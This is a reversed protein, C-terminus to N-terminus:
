PNAAQQQAVWATIENWKATITAQNAAYKTKLVAMGNGSAAYRAFVETATEGGLFGAVEKWPKTKLQTVVAAPDLIMIGGSDFPLVEDGWASPSYFSDKSYFDVIRALNQANLSADNQSIHEAVIHYLTYGMQRMTEIPVQFHEPRSPDGQSDSLEQMLPLLEIIDRQLRSTSVLDLGSKWTQFKTYLPSQQGEPGAPAALLTAAIATRQRIVERLHRKKFEVPPADALEEATLSLSSTNNLHSQISDDSEPIRFGPSVFEKADEGYSPSREVLVAIALSLLINKMTVKFDQL